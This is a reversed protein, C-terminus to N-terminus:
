PPTPASRAKLLKQLLASPNKRQNEVAIAGRNRWRQLYADMTDRDRWYYTITAHVHELSLSSYNLAIEEPLEGSLYDNLVTEIGVRTGRLRIEDASVFDFYDELQM